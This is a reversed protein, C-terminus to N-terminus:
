CPIISSRSGHIHRASPRCARVPQSVPTRCSVHSRSAVASSGDWRLPEDDFISPNVRRIQDSFNMGEYGLSPRCCQSCRAFISPWENVQYRCTRLTVHLPHKFRRRESWGRLSERRRRSTEPDPFFLGLGRPAGWCCRCSRL